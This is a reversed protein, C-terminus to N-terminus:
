IQHHNTPSLFAFTLVGTGPSVWVVSWEHCILGCPGHMAVPYILVWLDVEWEGPSSGCTYYYYKCLKKNYM